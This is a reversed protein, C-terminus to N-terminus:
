GLLSVKIDRPYIACGDEEDLCLLPENELHSALKNAAL